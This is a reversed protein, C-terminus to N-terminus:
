VAPTSLEQIYEDVHWGLRGNIIYRVYDKIFAINEPTLTFGRKTQNDSDYFLTDLLLFATEKKLPATKTAVQYSQIVDLSQRLIEGFCTALDPGGLYLTRRHAVAAKYEEETMEFSIEFTMEISVSITAKDSFYYM